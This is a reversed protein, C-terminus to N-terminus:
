FYNFDSKVEALSQYKLAANIIYKPKACLVEHFRFDPKTETYTKFDKVIENFKKIYESNM